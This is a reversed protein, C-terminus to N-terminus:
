WWNFAADKNGVSSLTREDSLTLLILFVSHMSESMFLWVRIPKENEERIVRSCFKGILLRSQELSREALLCAIVIHNLRGCLKIWAWIKACSWGLRYFHLSSPTTKTIWFTSFFLWWLSRSAAALFCKLSAPAVHDSISVASFSIRAQRRARQRRRISVHSPRSLFFVHCQRWFSRVPRSLLKADVIKQGACSAEM